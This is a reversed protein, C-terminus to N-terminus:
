KSTPNDLTREVVGVAADVGALKRSVKNLKEVNRKFMEINGLMLELSTAMQNSNSALLSSGLEQLKIGNGIQEPQTPVIISPKMHKVTEFCTAHGGSFIVLRSNAMYNLRQEPTLWTHIECNGTKKTVRKGPQGLSVISKMELKKLPPVITQVLKARTGPPGSIPAFVHEEKSRTPTM